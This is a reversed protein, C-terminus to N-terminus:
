PQINACIIKTSVHPIGKVKQGAYDNSSADDDFDPLLPILAGAPDTTFAPAGGIIEVGEFYERTTQGTCADVYILDGLKLLVSKPVAGPIASPFFGVRKQVFLKSGSTDNQFQSGCVGFGFFETLAYQPQGDTCACFEQVPQIFGDVLPEDRLCIVPGATQYILSRVNEQLVAGRSFPVQLSPTFASPGAFNFSITPHFGAAPAPRGSDSNHHYRDCEHDLVWQVEWTGDQCNNRYDIYGNFYVLGNFAHHCQPIHQNNGFNQILFPSLRLDGNILIRWVQTELGQQGPDTDEFWTRTYTGILSGGFLEIMQAGCTRMKFPIDYVGCGAPVGNPQIHQTPRGIDACLKKNRALQCRRWTFYRIDQKVEPFDPLVAQSPECCQGTFDLNDGLPCPQAQAIGSGILSFAFTALLAVAVLKKRSTTM